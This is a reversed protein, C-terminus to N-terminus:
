LKGIQNASIENIADYIKLLEACSGFNRNSRILKTMQESMDVNSNELRGQLIEFTGDDMQTFNTQNEGTSYTEEGVKFIEVGENPFVMALKDVSEGEEFIEGNAAVGFNAGSLTIHDLSENLVYGVDKLILNGEADMEFQGDRSLVINGGKDEVAFFGDGNIAFDLSRDTQHISGQTFDVYEDINVAIFAGRGIPQKYKFDNLESMRMTVHEGFTSQINNQTKFGATSANAINNAITNINEQQTFIGSAVSYFGRM